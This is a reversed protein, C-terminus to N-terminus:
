STAETVGATLTITGKVPTYVKGSDSKVQIDFVWPSVGLALTNAPTLDFRIEAPTDADGAVEIQGTGEVDVTTVHKQMVAASDPQGAYRKITLWADTVAEGVGSVSRRIELDDGAVYGTITADLTSM